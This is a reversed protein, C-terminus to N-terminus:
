FIVNRTLGTLLLIWATVCLYSGFAIPKIKAQRLKRYRLCHHIIALLSAGLLLLPLSQWGLWVGLAATLKFDGHGMGQVGTRWYYSRHILWLAGYGLLVGLIADNMTILHTQTQALLGLWLLSYTLEDPLIFHHADIWALCILLCSFLFLFISVLSLHISIYLYLGILLTLLEVIPYHWAIATHCYTCRGRHWFFSLLPILDIWRLGHQCDPCHSCQLWTNFSLPKEQLLHQPLRYIICNLFSGICLTICAVLLYDLRFLM